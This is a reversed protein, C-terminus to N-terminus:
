FSNLINWLIIIIIIKLYYKWWLSLNSLALLSGIYDKNPGNVLISVAAQFFKLFVEQDKLAWQYLSRLEPKQQEKNDKGKGHNLLLRCILCFESVIFSLFLIKFFYIEHFLLLKALNNGVLRFWPWLNLGRRCWAALVQHILYWFSFLHKMLFSFSRCLLIVNQIQWTMWHRRSTM